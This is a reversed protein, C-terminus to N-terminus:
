LKEKADQHSTLFGTKNKGYLSDIKGVFDVLYNLREWNPHLALDGICTPSNGSDRHYKM